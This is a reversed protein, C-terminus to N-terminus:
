KVGARAASVPDIQKLAQSAASSDVTTPNHLLIILAPVASIATTGYAGLARAANRRATPKSDGLAAILMPVFVDPQTHVQGVLFVSEDHLMPISKTVGDRLLPALAPVANSGMAYLADLVFVQSDASVRQRYLNVLAPVANSGAPGLAEFAQCAQSYGLWAQQPPKFFHQKQLLAVWKRSFPSDSTGLLRLLTPIADTGMQVVAKDVDQKPMGAAGLGSTDTVSGRADVTVGQTYFALWQRLPRGQYM